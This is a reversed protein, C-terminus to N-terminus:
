FYFYIQMMLNLLQKIEILGASLKEKFSLCSYLKRSISGISVSKEYVKLQLKNKESVIL